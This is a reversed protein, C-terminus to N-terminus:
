FIHLQWLAVANFGIHALISPGIRGTKVALLGAIAGFFFLGPLQLPEFHMAAFLLAVVVVAAWDPLRRRVSQLILGRYFFEELIPAFVCTLLVLLLKGGGGHASRALEKAPKELDHNSVFPLYGWGVVIQTLGGVVLGLADIPRIGLHLDVVPGAGRSRTAWIPGILFAAWLPIELLFEQEISPHKGLGIAGAVVFQLVTGICFAILADGLGWPAMVSTSPETTTV